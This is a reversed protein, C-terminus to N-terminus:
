RSIVVKCYGEAGGAAVRVFYLGTPVPEGRADRTDWSLHHMGAPIVQRASLTCIRRGSVDLVDASLEAGAPLECDVIASAHAPNPMAPFVRFSRSSTTPVALAGPVSGSADVRQAYIRSDAASIRADNWAAIAGGQGDPVLLPATQAGSTTCLSVGNTPWLMQGAGNFRQAYIDPDAGRGDEWAAIAGGAGDPVISGGEQIGAAACVVNGYTQWLTDGSASVRRAYIDSGNGNRMDRWAILAGHASDTVIQPSAQGGNADCVAVGNPTWEATGTPGLRQAFVHYYNGARLDAWTLLAGGEGDSILAAQDAYVGAIPISLVTAGGPWQLAGTSDVRQATVSSYLNWPVVAAFIAGGSGDADISTVYGSGVPVGTPGWQPRGAADIRQAYNGGRGDRWAAILGAKGDSTGVPDLQWEASGAVAVGGVDWLFKGGADIRQTFVSSGCRYDHWVLIVGGAGDSVAVLPDQDGRVVCVPDGDSGWLPQGAANLRQAYVDGNGSRLDVWAVIV